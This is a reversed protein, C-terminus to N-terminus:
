SIESGPPGIDFTVERSVDTVGAIRRAKHALAESGHVLIVGVAELVQDVIFGSQKLSAAVLDLQTGPAVTVTWAPESAKQPESM